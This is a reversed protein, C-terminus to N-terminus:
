SDKAATGACRSTTTPISRTAHRTRTVWTPSWSPRPRREKRLGDCSILAVTRRTRAWALARVPMALMAAVFIIGVWNQQIFGAM